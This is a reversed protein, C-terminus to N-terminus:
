GSQSVTPIVLRESGINEPDRASFNPIGQVLCFPGLQPSETSDESKGVLPRWAFCKSQLFKEENCKLYGTVGLGMVLLLLFVVCAPIIRHRPLGGTINREGQLDPTHLSTLQLPTETTKLSHPGVVLQVISFRTRSRLKPLYCRYMGEDELTVNLIKLSINGRRLDETFLETRKEYSSIKINPVEQYNRYLHVYRNRDPHLDKKSWEVTFSVVNVSPEVHCPLIVDEGPSAVIARTSGVVRSQGEALTEGFLLLFIFLFLTKEASVSFSFNECDMRLLSSVGCVSVPVSVSLDLDATHRLVDPLLLPRM